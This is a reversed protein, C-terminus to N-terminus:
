GHRLYALLARFADSDLEDRFVLARRTRRDPMTIKLAVFLGNVAEGVLAGRAGDLMPSGGADLLIAHMPSRTFARFGWLAIVALVVLKALVPLGSFVAALVALLSIFAIAM